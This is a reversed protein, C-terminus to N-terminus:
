RGEERDAMKVVGSVEQQHVPREGNKRGKEIPESNWAAAVTAPNAWLGAVAGAQRLEVGRYGVKPVHEAVLGVFREGTDAFRIVFASITLRHTQGSLGSRACFQQRYFHIRRSSMQRRRPDHGKQEGINLTRGTPPFGIGVRHPNCQSRVVFYQAVGISAFSPKRNLGCRRRPTGSREDRRHRRDLGRDGRLPLQFQRNPHADRGALGFQSVVVIEARHEVTRRSHHGRTM